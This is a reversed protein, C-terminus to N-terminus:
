RGSDGTQNKKKKIWKGRRITLKSFYLEGACGYVYFRWRLFKRKETISNIRHKYLPLRMYIQVANKIEAPIDFTDIIAEAVEELLELAARMMENLSEITQCLNAINDDADDFKLM